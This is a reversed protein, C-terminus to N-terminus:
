VEEIKARITGTIVMRDKLEAGSLDGDKNYDYDSIAVARFSNAYQILNPPLSGVVDKGSIDEPTVSAMVTNNPYMSQLLEVTGPHRSAIIVPRDAPIDDMREVHVMDVALDAAMVDYTTAYRSNRPMIPAYYTDIGMDAMVAASLSSIVIPDGDPNSRDALGKIAPFGYATVNNTAIIDNLKKM